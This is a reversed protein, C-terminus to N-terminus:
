LLKEFKVILNIEYKHFLLLRQKTFWGAFRAKSKQQFWSVYTKHILYNQWFYYFNTSLVSALM